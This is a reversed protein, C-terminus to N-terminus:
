IFSKNKELMNDSIKDLGELILKHWPSRVVSYGSVLSLNSAFGSYRNEEM